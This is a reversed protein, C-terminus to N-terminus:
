NVSHKPSSNAFNAFYNLKNAFNKNLFSSMKKMQFFFKDKHIYELFSLDFQLLCNYSIFIKEIFNVM